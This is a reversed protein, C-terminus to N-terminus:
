QSCVEKAEDVTMFRKMCARRLTRMSKVHGEEVIKSVTNKFTLRPRRRDRKGSVKGDYIKKVMREHSMREFHGFWSLVNKQMRVTVDENTGAMRHVEENRIRDALSVGCIRRLSRMEVANMKRENKKQLVWTESGYLLIPVLVANHVALRAAPSVNRWRMLAALAGNVKNGAAIRREVDMEYRGDRSFMSGLYVVENMQELIKGNVSIM